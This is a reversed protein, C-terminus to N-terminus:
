RIRKDKLTVDIVDNTERIILRSKCIGNIGSEVIARLQINKARLQNNEAELRAVYSPDYRLVRKFPLKINVVELTEQSVGYTQRWTVRFQADENLVGLYQIHQPYSTGQEITLTSVYQSGDPSVGPVSTDFENKNAVIIFYVVPGHIETRAFITM